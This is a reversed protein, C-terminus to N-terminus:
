NPSPTFAEICSRGARSTRRALVANGALVASSTSHWVVALAPTPVERYRGALTRKKTCPIVALGADIAQRANMADVAQRACSALVALVARGALGSRGAYVTRDKPWACSYETNLKASYHSTLTRKKQTSGPVVPFGPV